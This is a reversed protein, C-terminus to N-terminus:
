AMFAIIFSMLSCSIAVISMELASQGNRSDGKNRGDGEPRKGKVGGKVGALNRGYSGAEPNRGVTSGANWPGVVPLRWRSDRGGSGGSAAELSTATSRPIPAEARHGPAATRSPTAVHVSTATQQVAIGLPLSPADSSDPVADDELRTFAMPPDVLVPWNCYTHKPLLDNWIKNRIMLRPRYTDDTITGCHSQKGWCDEFRADYYASAPVPNLLNAYTFPALRLKDLNSRYIWKNQKFGPEFQGSVVSDIYDQSRINVEHTPALSMIDEPKLTIIGSNLLETAIIGANLSGAKGRFMVGTIAHHAIYVFPSTFTWTGTMISESFYSATSWITNFYRATGNTAHTAIAYPDTAYEYEITRLYRDQGHFTINTVTFVSQWNLSALNSTRLDQDTTKSPSGDCERATSVEPPWYLLVVEGAMELRCFQPNSCIEPPPEGLPRTFDERASSLKQYWSSWVSPCVSSQLKANVGCPVFTKSISDVQEFFTTTARVMKTVSSTGTGQFRFRPVGDCTTYIGGKGVPSIVEFHNTQTVYVRYSANLQPIPLSGAIEKYRDWCQQSEDDTVNGLIVATDQTKADAKM